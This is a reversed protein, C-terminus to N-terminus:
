IVTSHISMNCRECEKVCWKNPILDHNLPKGEGGEYTGSDTPADGLINDSIFNGKEDIPRNNIGWAKNCNEDCNVKAKQGCYVIIKEM